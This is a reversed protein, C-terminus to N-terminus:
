KKTEFKNEEWQSVDATENKQPYLRVSIKVENRRIDIKM